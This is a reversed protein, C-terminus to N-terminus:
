LLKDIANVVQNINLKELFADFGLKMGTEKESDSVHGTLAIVPLGKMKSDAKIAEVLEYGNMKPMQIDTLLFSIDNKDGYKLRNLAEEGNSVPTVNFGQNKLGRTIYDRYFEVDEAYLIHIGNRKSELVGNEKSIKHNISKTIKQCISWVDIVVVIKDNHIFNGLIGVRDRVNHDILHNVLRVDLISEVVLGIPVGTQEIVIVPIDDKSFDSENELHIECERNLFTKLNIIPMVSNRYQIVPINGTKKLNSTKIRELRSVFCLPIAYNCRDGIGFFLFESADTGKNLVDKKSHDSKIKSDEPNIQSIGLQSGIGDIDLILGPLGDSQFTSGLFIKGAKLFEPLTKVVTEELDLISDVELAYFTQKGQLLILCIEDSKPKKLKVIESLNFVPILRNNIEIVFGNELKKIKNQEKKFNLMRVVQDRPIAFNVGAVEVVVSTIIEVSKPIPLVLLINTGKGIESDVEIFGGLNEVSNKVQDMGVGRGSVDSVQAATSFGSDFIKTLIEVKSLSELKEETLLRKELLKSKIKEPDIGRGDDSIKLEVNKGSEYCHLTITGIKSKGSKEREEPGEVGHDLSNRIMHILSSKLVDAIATDVRLDEGICDLTIEKKLSQSVDRVTRRLPRYIEKVSVQRLEMVDKQMGINIAHMEELLETLSQVEKSGKLKSDIATVIKKIMNRLVTNEGSKRMFTDLLEIPAKVWDKTSNESKKKPNQESPETKSINKSSIEDSFINTLENIDKEERDGGKLSELLKNLTDLGKFFVSIVESHVTKSGDKYPSIFNEFQHSFRNITTPKFFASTGKITHLVRFIGNLAEIEGPSAELTFVMTELEECMNTAEDIFGEILENEEGISEVRKKSEKTIFIKLKELDFPKDIFGCIKSELGSMAMEKTIFGSIIAFPIEQHEALLKNRFEIGDMEPMKFDSIIMAISANNKNIYPIAESATMFSISEFGIKDIEDSILESIEPEDDVVIIKLKKIPNSQNREQVKSHSEKVKKKEVEIM